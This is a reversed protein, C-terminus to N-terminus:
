RRPSPCPGVPEVGAAEYFPAAPNRWSSGSGTEQEEYNYESSGIQFCDPTVWSFNASSVVPGACFSPWDNGAMNRGNPLEALLITGSNDRVVSTKYGPPEWPPM